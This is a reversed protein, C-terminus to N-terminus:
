HCNPVQHARAVPLWVQQYVNIPRLARSGSRVPLSGVGGHLGSSGHGQPLPRTYACHQRLISLGGLQEAELDRFRQQGRGIFQDFLRGRCPSKYFVSLEYTLQSVFPGWIMDPRITRRFVSFSQRGAWGTNEEDPEIPYRKLYFALMEDLGCEKLEAVAEELSIKEKLQANIKLPLIRAMMLM